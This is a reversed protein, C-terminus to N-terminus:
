LSNWFFCSHSVFKHVQEYQDLDQQEYMKLFEDEFVFEEASSSDDNAIPLRPKKRCPEEQVDVDARLPEADPKNEIAHLAIIEGDLIRRYVAASQGHPM